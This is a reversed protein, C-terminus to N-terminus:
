KQFMINPIDTITFTTRYMKCIVCNASWTLIVNMASNVLPMEPTRSFNNLTKFSIAIEVNVDDDNDANNRFIPKFEFSKFDIM